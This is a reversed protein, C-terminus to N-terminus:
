QSEEFTLYGISAPEWNKMLRNSWIHFRVLYCTIEMKNIYVYINQSDMTQQQEATHFATAPVAHAIWKRTWKSLSMGGGQIM